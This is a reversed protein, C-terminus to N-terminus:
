VRKGKKPVPPRANIMARYTVEPKNWDSYAARKMKEDAWEPAIVYGKPVWQWEGEPDFSAPFAFLADQYDLAARLIRDATITGDSSAWALTLQVLRDKYYEVSSVANTLKHLESM